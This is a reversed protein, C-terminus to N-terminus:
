AVSRKVGFADGDRDAASGDYVTDGAAKRGPDDRADEARVARALRGKQACESSRGRGCRTGYADVAPRNGLVSAARKRLMDANDWLVGFEGEFEADALDDRHATEAMARDVRSQRWRVMENNLIRQSGHGQGLHGVSGRVCQATSFALPHKEGLEEGLSRGNDQQILWGAVEVDLILALNKPGDALQHCPLFPRSPDNEM